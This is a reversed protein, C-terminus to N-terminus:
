SIRNEGNAAGRKRRRKELRRTVIQLGIALTLMGCMGGAFNLAAEEIQFHRGAIFQKRWEDWYSFGGCLLVALIGPVYPHVRMRLGYLAGYLLMGMVFFLVFHAATRLYGDVMGITEKAPADTFFRVIAEAIRKSTRATQEGNQASLSVILSGWGFAALALCLYVIVENKTKRKSLNM